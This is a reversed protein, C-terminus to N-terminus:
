EALLVFGFDLLERLTKVVILSERVRAPFALRKCALCCCRIGNV